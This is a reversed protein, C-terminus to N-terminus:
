SHAESAPKDLKWGGEERVLVQVLEGDMGPPLPRTGGPALRVVVQEGDREEGLFRWVMHGAAMHECSARTYSNWAERPTMAHVDVGMRQRLSRRVGPDAQAQAITGALRELMLAHSAETQLNWITELDADLFAQQFRDFWDRGPQEEM